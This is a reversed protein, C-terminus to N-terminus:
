DSNLPLRAASLEMDDPWVPLSALHSFDTAEEDDDVDGVEGAEQQPDLGTQEDDSSHLIELDDAGGAGNGDNGDPHSCRTSPRCSAGM